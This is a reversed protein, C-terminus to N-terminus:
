RWRRRPQARARGSACSVLGHLGQVGLPAPEKQYLAGSNGACEIFAIRTEMPYRALAELTFVLPHKVLGHILLRHADPDIDPIGDHHREFHLGNPTITGDLQPLASRAVSYFYASVGVLVLLVALILGLVLRPWLRRRVAIASSLNDAPTTVMRSDQNYPSIHAATLM